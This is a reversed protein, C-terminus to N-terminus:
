GLPGSYLTQAAGTKLSLIEGKEFVKHAASCLSATLEM